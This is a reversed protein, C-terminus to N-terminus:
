DWWKHWGRAEWSPNPAKAWIQWSLQLSCCRLLDLHSLMEGLRIWEGAGATRQADAAWWDVRDFLTGVDRHSRVVLVARIYPNITHTLGVAYLGSPILRISKHWIL